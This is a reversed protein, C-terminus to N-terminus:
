YDRIYLFNEGDISQYYHLSADGSIGVSLIGGKTNVYKIDGDLDVDTGKDGTSWFLEGDSIYFLKNGNYITWRAYTIEEDFDGELDEGIQVPKNNGKQYMLEDDSNYFYIAKGDSTAIFYRVGEEVLLKDEDDEKTGNVKYISDGKQYIITKGDEMLQAKNINSVVKNTEYKSDIYYIDDEDDVYFTGAFDTVGYTASEFDSILSTGEPLLLGNFTGSLLKKEDGNHIIYSDAGDSFIVDTMNHNFFLVDSEDSLKKRSGREAGKQVYISGNKAYYVYKADNSIAITDVDEGLSIEKGNYYYGGNKEEEEGYVSYAVTKGDPSVSYSFNRCDATIMETKGDEWIYLESTYDDDEKTFVISEGSEGIIVNSVEDAIFTVKDAVYYLSYEEDDPSGTNVVVAASKSDFSLHRVYFGEITMKTKGNKDPNILVRDEDQALYLVAIQEYKSPKIFSFLIGAVAIIVVIVIVPLKIKKRQGVAAPEGNDVKQRESLSTGCTGCFKMNPRIDAGCNECKINTM